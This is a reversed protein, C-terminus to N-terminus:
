GSHVRTVISGMILVTTNIVVQQFITKVTNSFSIDLYWSSKLRDLVIKINLPPPYYKGVWFEGGGGSNTEKNDSVEGEGLLLRYHRKLQVNTNQTKWYIWCFLEKVPEAWFDPVCDRKFRREPKPLIFDKSLLFWVGILPVGFIPFM